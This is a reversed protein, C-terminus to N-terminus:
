PKEFEAADIKDFSKVDTLESEMVKKGERYVVFRTPRRYGGIDKFDSCFMEERVEKGSGDDLLTETKILLGNDKDFYLNLAKRGKSTVKIGVVRRDSVLSEGLPTLDFTRDSLLPVLRVARQLQLTSRMEELAAPEIKQPQGDLTVVAKDGNLLHVVTFSRGESTVRILHKVQDPLQVTTEAVFSASKGMLQLTGKLKVKDARVRALREQGGHAKIAREITTRPTEQALAGPIAAFLLGAMWARLM